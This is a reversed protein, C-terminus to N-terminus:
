SRVARAPTVLVDTHTSQMREWARVAELENYCPVTETRAECGDEAPLKGTVYHSVAARDPRTADWVPDPLAVFQRPLHAPVLHEAVSKM